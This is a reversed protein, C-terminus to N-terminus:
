KAKGLVHGVADSGFEAIFQMKEKRTLNLYDGKSMNPDLTRVGAELVPSQVLRRYEDDSHTSLFEIKKKTSWQSPHQGEQVFFKTNEPRAAFNRLAKVTHMETGSQALVLVGDQIEATVGMTGLAAVIDTIRTEPAVRVSAESFGRRIASDIASSTGLEVPM